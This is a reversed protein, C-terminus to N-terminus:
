LKSINLKKSWTQILHKSKSDNKVNNILEYFLANKETPKLKAVLDKFNVPTEELEEIKQVKKKFFNFM